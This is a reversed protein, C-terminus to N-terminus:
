RNLYIEVGVTGDPVTVPKAAERGLSWTMSGAMPVTQRSRKPLMVVRDGVTLSVTEESLNFVSVDIPGMAKGPVAVLTVAMDRERYSVRQTNVRETAARVNAPTEPVPREIEIRPLAKADPKPPAPIAAPPLTVTPLPPQGPSNLGVSAFCSIFLYRCM